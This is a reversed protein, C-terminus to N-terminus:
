EKFSLDIKVVFPHRPKEFRRATVHKRVCEGVETEPVLLMEGFAGDRTVEFYITFAKPLPKGEPACEGMFSADGWFTTVAKRQYKEGEPTSTDRKNRSELQGATSGASAATAMGLFVVFALRTIM